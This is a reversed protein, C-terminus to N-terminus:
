PIVLAALSLENAGYTPTGETVIAIYMTSVRLPIALGTVTGVCNDKFSTYDTSGIKFWAVLKPLDADAVDFEADDTFTTGSPDADFLLIRLDAAQASLDQVTFASLIPCDYARGGYGTFELKAGVLDGASYTAADAGVTAGTIKVIAM